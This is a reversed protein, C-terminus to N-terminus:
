VGFQRLHHDLHKYEMKGWQEMTFKGFMPHPNWIERDKLDYFADVLQVLQTKETEFNKTETVKLQPATPLNKRWPKDNYMAKKFFLVIPNFKPKVLENKIAIKLPYQCHHAMQGVEMKGWHRKSNENLQALRVKIDRYGAEELLSKM